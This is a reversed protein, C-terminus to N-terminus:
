RYVRERKIIYKVKKRGRKYKTTGCARSIYRTINSTYIKYVYIDKIYIYISPHRSVESGSATTPPHYIDPLCGYVLPRTSTGGRLLNAVLNPRVSWSQRPNFQATQDTSAVRYTYYIYVGARGDGHNRRARRRVDTRNKNLTYIYIGVAGGVCGPDPCCGGGCGRCRYVTGRGREAGARNFPLPFRGPRPGRPPSKRLSLFNIDIVATLFVGSQWRQEV